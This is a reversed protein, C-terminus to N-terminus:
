GCDGSVIVVGTSQGILQIVSYQARTRPTSNCAGSAAHLAAGAGQVITALGAGTAAVAVNCNAPWTSLFTLNGPSASNYQLVGGCMNTSTPDINGSGTAATPAAPFVNGTYTCGALACASVDAATLSLTGGLSVTHTNLTLASNTLGANPVTGWTCNTSNSAVCSLNNAASGNFVVSKVSSTTSVGFQNFITDGSQPQWAAGIAAGQGLFISGIAGNTLTANCIWNKSTTNVQCYGGGGAAAVTIGAVSVGNVTMTDGAGHAITLTNSNTVLGADDGFYLTYGNAYSTSPHLTWTFASAWPAVTVDYWDTVGLTASGSIQASAFSIGGSGSCSGAAWVGGTGIVCDGNVPAIGAPSNTANSVVIYGSTPWTVGSGGCAGATWAGASGVVCDGNVAGGINVLPLLGFVGGAGSGALNIAPIFGAALSGGGGAIPVTNGAASASVLQTGSITTGSIWVALTGNTIGGSTSVNGGGGGGCSGATWLGGAGVVCDGNVPALLTPSAGGNGLLIGNATLSALGTGGQTVPLPSAIGYGALTTPAGTVGSWPVATAAIVGSGTASLTAGSGVVMAATTNTGSTISNFGGGGGGGPFNLCTNLTCDFTKNTLIQTGALVVIQNAQFRRSPTPTNAPQAVAIYDGSGLPITANPWTPILNGFSQQQQQANATLACLSLILAATLKRLVRM